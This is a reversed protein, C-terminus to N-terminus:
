RVPAGEIQQVGAIWFIRTIALTILSLLGLVLLLIVSEYYEIGVYLAGFVFLLIAMVAVFLLATKQFKKVPISAWRLVFQKWSILPAVALAVLLFYYVALFVALLIKLVFTISSFSESSRIFYLLIYYSAIKFPALILFMATWAKLLFQLGEKIKIRWPKNEQLIWHSLMWICGNLLLFLAAMWALFAFVNRLMSRY